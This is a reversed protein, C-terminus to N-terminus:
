LQGSKKLKTKTKYKKTKNKYFKDFYKYDLILRCNDVSKYSKNIKFTGESKM